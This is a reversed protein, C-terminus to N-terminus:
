LGLSPIDSGDTNKPASDMWTTVRVPTNNQVRNVGDAVVVEGNKLGSLIVWYDHYWDGPEVIRITAQGKENIVYVFTGNQGQAVATQPVIIANIRKAGKVIVRVFQGPRLWADRNAVISRVLMTGTSQQIDPATFDIKGSAPFKTGDAMVIEIEFTKDKPLQLQNKASENRAKLIDGESVSFNVWIPDLVYLQTLLSNPGPSILAGERFIARSVWGKVPAGISCFSLNLKAKEVDAESTMVSARTAWEEAIANDYDRQSVANVRYLPEMRKLSQVANWHRAKNKELEGKAMDLADIFPRQDIVFLPDNLDVLTGEVYNIQELYGEVRARIEVIHSSEAVGVYEFNAPITAAKVRMATVPVPPRAQPAKKEGCAVACLVCGVYFM